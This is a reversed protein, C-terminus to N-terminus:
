SCNLEEVQLGPLRYSCLYLLRISSDLQFIWSPKVDPLLSECFDCLLLINRVPTWSTERQHWAPPCLVILLHTYWLRQRKKNIIRVGRHGVAKQFLLVIIILMELVKAENDVEVDGRDWNDEEEVVDVEWFDLLCGMEVGLLGRGAWFYTKSSFIILIRNISSVWALHIYPLDPTWDINQLRQSRREM